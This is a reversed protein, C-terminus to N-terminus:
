RGLGLQRGVAGAVRGAYGRGMELGVSGVNGKLGKENEFEGGDLLKLDESRTRRRKIGESMGGTAEPSFSISTVILPTSVRTNRGSLTSYHPPPVFGSASPNLATNPLHAIRGPSLSSSGPPALHSNSPPPQSPGMSPFPVSQFFASSASTALLLPLSPTAGRRLRPQLDEPLASAHSQSKNRKSTSASTSSQPDYQNQYQHLHHPQPNLGEPYYQTNFNQLNSMSSQPPSSPRLSTYYPTSTGNNSGHHSQQHQHRPPEQNSDSKAM